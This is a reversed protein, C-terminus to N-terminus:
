KLSALFEILDRLDRKSLVNALEAPMGSLGKERKIIEAKKVKVLGDEPSNITLLDPTEARLIGAVSQGGKTVVVVSDFGPSIKANPNVISELLHERNQKGGIGTLEPGVEGGEGNVRHCRLCSAEAREFFIKRGAEASGGTLAARYNALPDKKADLTAEFKTLREKVSSAERKAAAEMLDLQLEPALKGTLLLDLQQALVTDAAGDKLDGLTVLANQKEGVTGKGLAAILPTTAHAPALTAQLRTAEKRLSEWKDAAAIKVAEALTADGRAAMAKLAAVRVATDNRTNMVIGALDLTVEKMGFREVLGLAAARVANSSDQVLAAIVPRLAAAAVKAERATLPRYLGSVRDLRAPAAWDALHQLAESRRAEPATKLAAFQALATANEPKGARLNANLVRRLIADRPGPKEKSGEPLAALKEAQAALAALAPMAAEISEDNIARAAEAVVLPDADALFPSLAPSKLRRLAVVAGIRAARSADKTAMALTATDACGVLGMVGAHRLVPDQDDNARLMAFLAPVAPKHAFKGLAIAAFMRVRPSEDALLNVLGAASLTAGADGLTKAAQARVEADKDALLAVLAASAAPYRGVQGLGWIAHLRALRSPHKTAVSILQQLPADMQRPTSASVFARHALEFQAATRVRQDAHALLGALFPSARQEMGEGLLKKTEAALPDAALTPDHLRYLRGKGPMGWGNVWDSIYLGGDVGFEVDTVLSNWIPKTPASMEFGAGKPKVTVALLGSNAPSGSFNALLFHGKLSPVLGTGPHYALGSPGNGLIAIPPLHHAAQGEFHPYCLREALWPGRANPQNIFQWGIRWGSDSGEVAYVWRAPDGADSNNDGTFLNGFEDFALEQPNRLGSAFIELGTGDLNCRYIAGTEPNYVKKGDLATANAGRDGISFYLKGDPGIRLGHLDHGLFATRVGFGRALSKKVDATGTEKTDKLLWLDPICTYYINGRHALVGSGIGAQPENFGEAFVSAKDARGSGASDWVLRVRDTQESIKKLDIKPDGKFIAMWSELSTSALEAELWNMHGRIDTVGAHLRFTEAVYWRGKEDTAIAVPNALLPEAAWVDVKLGPAVKFQKIALEAAIANAANQGAKPLEAGAAPFIFAGVVWAALALVVRNTQMM